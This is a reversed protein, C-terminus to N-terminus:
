KTGVYVFARARTKGTAVWVRIRHYDVGNDEYADIKVLAADTIEELIEGEIKEGTKSVIVPYGDIPAGFQYDHLVAERGAPKPEGVVNFYVRADRLSGYVFLSHTM